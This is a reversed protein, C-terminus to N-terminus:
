QVPDEGGPAVGPPPTGTPAAGGVAARVAALVGAPGVVTADARLREYADAGADGAYNRAEFPREEVLVVSDAAAAARINPLNGEGVEVDTVLVADAERARERAATAAAEDVPAYPPVTVVDLGLSRAAETDADGENLAGVSVRYGAASLLHCFRAATGGGGVVHVHGRDSPTGRDPVATVYVSGTVPHRTVTAATGFADALRDETLVAPPAGSALIRGDGVLLLEDCYHAALNLDHIAALVTRGAAVLDRVLELTQVQHNIDLSATPEDLLVVPTDQALARALLVRQREGGSVASVPRDAFEGVETRDMAREVATRDAATEGGFRSVHPTRGMAVVERVAFEFPVTTEQPVTAVLRSQARSGLRHVDHGCVAVRGRDPALSGDVTRLLTTKGAGNPGVVGVFRGAEVSFDVGDLVRVDSLRVALGSVDVAPGGGCSTGGDPGDGSGAGAAGDRTV